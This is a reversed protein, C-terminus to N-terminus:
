TLILLARDATLRVHRLPKQEVKRRVLSSVSAAGKMRPDLESQKALNDCKSQRLSSESTLLCIPKKKKKYGMSASTAAAGGVSATTTM